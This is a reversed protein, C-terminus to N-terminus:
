LGAHAGPDLRDSSASREPLMEQIHAHNRSHLYRDDLICRKSIGHFKSDMTILKRQPEIIGSRDSHSRNFVIPLFLRRCRSSFLHPGGTLM